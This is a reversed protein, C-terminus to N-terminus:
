DSQSTSWREAALDSISEFAPRLAPYLSKYIGHGKMYLATEEPRPTLKDTERLAAKCVEPVGSYEGTGALALLAAGHASGEQTALRAVPKGFVDALLQCWFVSRSGGGSARVSSAKVGL